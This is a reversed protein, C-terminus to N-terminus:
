ADCLMTGVSMYAEPLEEPSKRQVLMHRPRVDTSHWATDHQAVRLNLMAGHTRSNSVTKGGLM